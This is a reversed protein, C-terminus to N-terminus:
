PIPEILTSYTHIFTHIYTYIYLHIFYFHLMLTHIYSHIYIYKFPQPYTHIYTHIATKYPSIITVQDGAKIFGYSTMESVWLCSTSSTRRGGSETRPKTRRGATMRRLHRWTAPINSRRAHTSSTHYCTAGSLSCSTIQTSQRSPTSAFRPGKPVSSTNKWSNREPKASYSWCFKKDLGAKNRTRYRRPLPM